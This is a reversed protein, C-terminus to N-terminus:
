ACDRPFDSIISVCLWPPDDFGTHIQLTDTFGLTASLLSHLDDIGALGYTIKIHGVLITARVTWCAASGKDGGVHSEQPAIPVNVKCDAMLVTLDLIALVTTGLLCVVFEGSPVTASALFQNVGLELDLCPCATIAEM